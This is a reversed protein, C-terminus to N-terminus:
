HYLNLGDISAAFGSSQDTVECLYLDSAISVLQLAARYVLKSLDLRYFEIQRDTRTQREISSLRCRQCTHVIDIPRTDSLTFSLSCKICANAKILCAYTNM